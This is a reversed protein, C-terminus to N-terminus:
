LGCVAPCFWGAQDVEQGDIFIPNSMPASPHPGPIGPRKMQETIEGGTNGYSRIEIKMTYFNEVGKPATAKIPGNLPTQGTFIVYQIKILYFWEARTGSNPLFLPVPNAKLYPQTGPALRADFAAPPFRLM